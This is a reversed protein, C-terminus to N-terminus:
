SLFFFFSFYFVYNVLVYFLRMTSSDSCFCITILRPIWSWLVMCRKVHVLAIKKRCEIRGYKIVVMSFSSVLVICVRSYKAASCPLLFLLPIEDPNFFTVSFMCRFILFFLFLLLFRSSIKFSMMLM